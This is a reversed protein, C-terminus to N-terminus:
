LAVFVDEGFIDRLMQSRDAYVAAKEDIIQQEEPTPRDIGTAVNNYNIQGAVIEDKLQDVGMYGDFIYPDTIITPTFGNQLLLFNLLVVVIVRQNGDHFFHAIELDRCVRAIVALAADANTSADLAEIDTNYRHIIIACEMYRSKMNETLVGDPPFDTGQPYRSKDIAFMSAIKRENEVMHKRMSEQFDQYLTTEYNLTPEVLMGEALTALYEAPSGGTKDQQFFVKEDTWWELPCARTEPCFHDASLGFTPSDFVRGKDTDVRISCHHFAKRMPKFGTEVGDVAIDHMHYFMDVSLRQRLNEENSAWRLAKTMAAKYGPEKEDFADAGEWRRKWDIFMKYFEESQFFEEPITSPELLVVSSRLRIAAACNYLLLLPLLMAAMINYSHFTIMVM